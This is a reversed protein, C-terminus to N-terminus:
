LPIASVLPGTPGSKPKQFIGFMQDFPIFGHRNRGQHWDIRAATEPWHATFASPQNGFVAATRQIKSSTDRHIQQAMAM